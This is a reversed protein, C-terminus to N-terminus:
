AHPAETDIKALLARARQEIAVICERDDARNIWALWDRIVDYMEPAASILRANAERRADIRAKVAADEYDVRRSPNTPSFVDALPVYGSAEWPERQGTPVDAAVELGYKRGKSDTKMNRNVRWPGITHQAREATM